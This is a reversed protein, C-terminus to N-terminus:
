DEGMNSNSFVVALEECLTEYRYRMRIDPVNTRNIDNGAEGEAQYNKGIWFKKESDPFGSMIVSNRALECMDAPSLKFVQAAVSYEEM